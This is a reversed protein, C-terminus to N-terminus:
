INFVLLEKLGSAADLLFGEIFPFGLGLGLCLLALVVLAIVMSVPVEKVSKMEPKLEGFVCFKQLKIFSLLTVFSVFVTIAAYVYLKAQFLAIVIMLKSWFGNFPPIGAISLSAVSTATSTFPMRKYLGGLKRMDRTGTSYEIAGACLFLSTKFTAHNIAHFLGGAIGLAAVEPSGALAGVGLGTMVYGMQSISHYALQRKIDYQGLALLVGVVMSLTGLLLMIWGLMENVGFMGFFIRAIAYIGLAKILVGSLMASIPAPASPHADPLWAHFPVMASKLGFGMLFLAYVFYISSREGHTSLFQAIDAMNLSGTNAYVIAIGLLIMSSAVGGLILYKFSAELEESEVGFGVLAYSALSAIELFVYLNFLDGALVVGNMGAIMLLLLAYFKPKATYREMYSLAYLTALFAVVNIILLLIVTLKDVHLQIGLPWKWGGVMYDLNGATILRVALYALFSVGLFTFVDSTRKSFKSTILTFFALGMPVAVFLPILNLM